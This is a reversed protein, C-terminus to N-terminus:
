HQGDNRAIPQGEYASTRKSSSINKAIEQQVTEPDKRRAKIFTTVDSPPTMTEYSLFVVDTKSAQACHQKSSQGPLAIAHLMSQCSPYLAAGAAECVAGSFGTGAYFSVVCGEILAAETDPSHQARPSAPPSSRVHQVLSTIILSKSISFNTPM